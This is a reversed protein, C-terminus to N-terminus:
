FLKKVKSYVSTVKNADAAKSSNLADTLLNPATSNGYFSIGNISINSLDFATDGKGKIYTNYYGGTLYRAIDFAIKSTPYKTEYEKKKQAIWETLTLGTELEYIITTINLDFGTKANFYLNVKLELCFYSKLSQWAVYTTFGPTSGDKFFSKFSSLLSSSVDKYSNFNLNCTETFLGLSMAYPLVTTYQTPLIFLANSINIPPMIGFKYLLEDAVLKWQKTKLGKLVYDATILGSTARVLPSEKLTNIQQLLSTTPEKSAVGYDWLADVSKISLLNNNKMLKLLTRREGDTLVDPPPEGFIENDEGLEGIWDSVPIESRSLHGKGGKPDKDEHTKLKKLLYDYEAYQEQRLDSISSM